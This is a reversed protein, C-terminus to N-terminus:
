FDGLSKHHRFFIRITAVIIGTLGVGGFVLWGYGVHVGLVAVAGTSAVGFAKGYEM